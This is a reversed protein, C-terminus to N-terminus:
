TSYASGMETKKNHFLTFSIFSFSFFDVVVDSKVHLWLRKLVQLM